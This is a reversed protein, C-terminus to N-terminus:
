RRAERVSGHHRRIEVALDLARSPNHLPSKPEKAAQWQKFLAGCVDCDPNPQPDSVALPDLLEVPDSM